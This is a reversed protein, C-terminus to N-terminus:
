AGSDIPGIDLTRGARCLEAFGEAPLPRAFHYGQMEDCGQSRLCALQHATEVGEGVVKLGLRHALDIIAATIVTAGDDSGIERVFSQDIKLADIPFRQLYGFSSYGTGFDDLSLRVGLRKLSQLIGITHQPDDMLMSETLELELRGADVGHRALAASVVEPLDGARFQPASVNLALRCDGMGEDNWARLQRCSEDIVWAGIPVILGTAEALPIFQGPPLMRGDGQHWRILAEAGCLRGSRLDAKAQYHLVFERREIARRLAADLALRQLANANMTATYFCFRNRGQAKAQHLAADANRLLETASAGDDPHISIGISAGLYLEAAGALAFPEAIASLVAQAREAALEPREIADLILMFEDGGLRGLTDESRVCHRLRIAVEVLLRDGAQHGLSDNVTQFRDINVVLVASRRQSRGAQNLAYELRSQLLLRNPLDTLPDHHVLHALQEESRRQQSIDSMLAVYRSAQRHEDLVPSITMRCLYLEGNRRRNWMEGQWQGSEALSARLVRFFEPGQRDSGLISPHRGLVEAEGYGTIDTFARNVALIEGALGTIIVGERASEFVTAAQRLREDAQRRETVDNAIGVYRLAEGHATSVPHGRERVWRRSGDPRLVRYEVEFPQGAQMAAQKITAIRARDAEDLAELKAGPDRYLAECSRQWITEYAPSVYVYRRPSLESLWIVEPITAAILRFREESEQLAREAAKRQGIDQVVSIFYEAMGDADRVLSVTLKSWVIKGGKAIYRKELEYSALDGSLVKGVLGVDLDLDDPHTIDQFSLKLLEDYGYALIECLKRNVRLWRGDPAVHAIGVAAQEFTARFREELSFLQRGVRSRENLLSAIRSLLDDVGFPKQIYDQVGHRLLKARLADDAKATLMVIPTADLDPHQRVIEALQDGSMGPMMVDSLILAPQRDLAMQLGEHGDFANAVRYRAALASTIFANMDANDEIVLILPAEDDPPRPAVHRPQPLLDEIWAPDDGAEGAVMSVVVSGAPARCPLRVVLAAGGEPAPTVGVSGQLLAVFERVISLGLGSGGSRRRASDDIQRFREFVTERMPAPIGPGNDRVELVIDDGEQRLCIRVM